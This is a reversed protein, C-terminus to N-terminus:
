EWPEVPTEGANSGTTSNAFGCEVTVEITELTPMQYIKKM